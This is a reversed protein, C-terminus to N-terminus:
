RGKSLILLMKNKTEKITIKFQLTLKRKKLILSIKRQIRNRIWSKTKNPQGETISTLILPTNLENINIM